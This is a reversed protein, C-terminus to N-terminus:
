RRSHTSYVYDRLDAVQRNMRWLVGQFSRRMGRAVRSMMLPYSEAMVDFRSKNMSLIVADGSAYFRADADSVSFGGLDTMDGPVLTCVTAEGVGCPVKVKINGDALISLNDCEGDQPAGIAEGSKYARAEFMGAIRKLEADNLGGTVASAQLTDIVTTM